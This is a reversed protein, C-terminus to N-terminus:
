AYLAVVYKSYQYDLTISTKKESELIGPLM